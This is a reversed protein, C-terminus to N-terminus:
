LAVVSRIVDSVKVLPTWCGSCWLPEALQAEAYERLRALCGDCLLVTRTSCKKEGGHFGHVVTRWVAPQDCEKQYECVVDADFDPLAALIADPHIAPASM